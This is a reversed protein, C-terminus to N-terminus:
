RRLDRLAEIQSGPGVVIPKSGSGDRNELAWDAYFHEGKGSARIANVVGEPHNWGHANLDAFLLPDGGQAALLLAKRSPGAYDTSLQRVDRGGKELGPCRVDLLVSEDSWGEVLARIVDAGEGPPYRRHKLKYEVLALCLRDLNKKCEFVHSPGGHGMRNCGGFRTALGAMLLILVMAWALIETSRKM